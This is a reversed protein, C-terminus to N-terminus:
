PLVEAGDVTVALPVSESVRPDGRRLCWGTLTVAVALRWAGRMGGTMISWTV